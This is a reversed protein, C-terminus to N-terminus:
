FFMSDLDIFQEASNRIREDIGSSFAGVYLQKNTRTIERFLPIYDGDGSLLFISDIPMTLAARMVDITLDIDIVKTKRSNALKKHVRPIIKSTGSYTAGECRFEVAGIQKEVEQVRADDGTVSTFYNVRIVDLQSWLTIRPAWVFSGQIHIVDAKPKFGDRVMAEYRITLNEGDIFAITKKLMSDEASFSPLM